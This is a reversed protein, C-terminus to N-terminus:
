AFLKRATEMAKKIGIDSFAPRSLKARWEEHGRILDKVSDVDVRQGTARLDEAAMDVTALAELEDNKIFRFQELWRVCDAGYWKEFYGEAQAINEAAIFGRYPGNQHERIYTNEIAIREPGGYKTRPNYPGAAKKLYGRAEREAHRHLLYSLKTYRKRGLPFQETGFRKSLISIV